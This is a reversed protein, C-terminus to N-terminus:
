SDQPPFKRFSQRLFDMQKSFNRCGSCMSLHLRLGVREFLTLKRDMGMSMLATAQKCNLMKM